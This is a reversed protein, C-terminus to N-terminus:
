AYIDDDDEEEEEEEMRRKKEEGELWRREFDLMKQNLQAWLRDEEDEDGNDTRERQSTPPPLACNCM